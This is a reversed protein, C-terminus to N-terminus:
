ILASGIGQHRYADDVYIGEVYAVPKQTAGPVYEYRQALNIFAIAPGGEDRVLYGAERPSQLIEPLKDSMDQIEDEGEEQRLKLALALWDEFDARTIASIDIDPLHKSTNTM